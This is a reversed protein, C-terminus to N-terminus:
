GMPWDALHQLIASRDWVVGDAFAIQEVGYAADSWFQYDIRSEQSTVLDRVFLHHGDRRLAVQSAELDTFVLTDTDSASGADYISDAGDGSAYRYVDSGGRGELYDNGLDGELTEASGSGYLSNGGADGRFWAAERIQERDWVAGDAFTVQEIGYSADSYFQYDVRSEQSTTLDRVFLHHGERRFEVQSALLDTLMLGDVDSSNGADYISDAGDGSAYRYVDSGARGELYDNGAQGILTEADGSGYLSNGNADGRFWAAERIQERDWVAGDAFTIQEIGYSADSYYQYDIRSEQATALDRMFLHHGDRRLEVQSAVLNTLMLADVDSVSGADYITDAGDASGYRYVDSGGRGELYDNGAEGAFTDAAGTGYL